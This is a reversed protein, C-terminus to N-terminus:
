RLTGALVEELEDLTISWNFKTKINEYAQKALRERVGEDELLFVVKELLQGKNGPEVTFGTVGDEVVETTGDINTAIVPCRCTMAELVTHPLGEYRSNLVFVDASRLYALTQEHSIKGTFLVNEEVNKERCLRRLKGKELGDGVIVLRFDPYREVLAPVIEVLEDVRKWQVLRGVTAVVPQGAREAQSGGEAIEVANYVVAIRDPPVQYFNVLVKKLYESPTIVRSANHFVWKQIRMLIKIDIGGEPRSLFDDLLRSTRGRNVAHEWAIDGVFKVAVPKRRLKGVILSTLGVVVPGQAYILDADRATRLITFFMRARRSISGLLGYSLRVPIIELDEAEPEASIFAVVRIQHGKEKLRRAVERTYVAPGGIEPPFIPTTILIKM